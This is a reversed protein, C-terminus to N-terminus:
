TTQTAGDPTQKAILFRAEFETWNDESRVLRLDGGHLRVLKRALNLGLGHGSVESRTGAHHFREFIHEQTNPAISRGTNGITLVVKGKEKHATVRILGGPQNYKRANELLNQVILSTYPKEGAICLDAPFKKEIKVDPSDPLAGLDDLWEDILQSLNVPRSEIELHGADMRALLLLDDIVGTLRHTQHLLASLEEYIEPKFDERGLLGELGARLVTVPSKLQHSADASYRTSRRLKKRTSALATQVRKRKVRNKESDLALKEVPIAFRAAVFQSAVFGGLLLLAGAGGIRWRLRHLQAISDALSYVCIEYAPPFLSDPNLRRYFLIQPAGNISVTFNNQASASNTVAKTVDSGLAAQAAKSLSPLHLRGNVWIGSEMGAGAGKGTLEFPTFGVVLASIVNGTETSFIPVAVIEDVIENEADVNEQAYGIQQTEVLQKLGLQAEAQPSLEGVDKPNPPSLVAGASNLFRYFKAHLSPAEEEPSLEEGEMLDRLEDKASPYLLDLANDELAAHIRPRSALASCREAIAAHRFRQVKDLSSLEAQFNQQLDRKAAATVNRQALYLGSGTIASVVLMMAVLLKTRFSAASRKSPGSAPIM